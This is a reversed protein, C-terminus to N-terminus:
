LIGAHPPVRQEVPPLGPQDRADEAGQPLGAPRRGRLFDEPSQPPVLGALDLVAQRAQDLFAHERDGAPRPSDQVPGPTMLSGVRSARAAAMAAASASICAARDM